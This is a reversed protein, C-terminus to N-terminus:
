NGPIGACQVSPWVILTKALDFQPCTNYPMVQLNLKAVPRSRPGDRWHPAKRNRSRKTAHNSVGHESERDFDSNQDESYSKFAMTDCFAAQILSQSSVQDIDM